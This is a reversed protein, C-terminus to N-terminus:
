LTSVLYDCGSAICLAIIMEESFSQLDFGSIPKIYIDDLRLTECSGDPKLKFIMERCGFPITDSDESIVADVIGWRSLFSLQADAEYPAVICHVSESSRSQRIAKILEAAMLPTVDVSRALYNRATSYDGKKLAEIGSQLNSERDMARSVETVRKAPLEAGDFVLYVLLDHALLMDLLGMFYHIWQNTPKGTALEVCCSYTAKHLWAYGDVAVRKSRFSRIHNSVVVPKLLPLLGNIGM